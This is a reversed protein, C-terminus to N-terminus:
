DINILCVIEIFFYTMKKTLFCMNKMCILDMINYWVTLNNDISKAWGLGDVVNKSMQIKSNLAYKEVTGFIIIILCLFCFPDSVMFFINQMIISIIRHVEQVLVAIFLWFGVKCFDDGIGSASQLIVCFFSLCVTDAFDLCPSSM